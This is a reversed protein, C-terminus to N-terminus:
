SHIYAHKNNSTIHSTFKLYSPVQMTIVMTDTNCKIAATKFM